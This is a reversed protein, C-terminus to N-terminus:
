LAGKVSGEGCCSWDEKEFEAGLLRGLDHM